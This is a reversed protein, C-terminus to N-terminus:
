PMAERTIRTAEIILLHARRQIEDETPPPPGLLKDRLQKSRRSIVAGLNGGLLQNAVLCAMVVSVVTETVINALVAKKVKPDDVDALQM